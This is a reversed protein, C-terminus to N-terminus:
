LRSGRRTLFSGQEPINLKDIQINGCLKNLNIKM